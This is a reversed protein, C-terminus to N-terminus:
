HPIHWQQALSTTSCDEIVVADPNALSQSALCMGTLQGVIVLNGQSNVLYWRESNDTNDCAYQVIPTGATQLGYPDDVCKNSGVNVIEYSGDSEATFTWYPDNQDALSATVVQAMDSTSGAVSLYEENLGNQLLM